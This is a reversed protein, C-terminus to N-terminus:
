NPLWNSQVSIFRRNQSAKAVGHSGASYVITPLGAVLRNWASEKSTSPGFNVLPQWCRYPAKWDARRAVPVSSVLATTLPLTPSPTCLPAWWVGSSSCEFSTEMGMSASCGVTRGTQWACNEKRRSSVTRSTSFLRALRRSGQVHLLM